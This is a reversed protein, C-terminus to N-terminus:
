LFDRKEQIRSQISTQKQLIPADEDHVGMSTQSLRSNMRRLHMGEEYILAENNFHSMGSSRYPDERNSSLYAQYQSMLNGPQMSDHQYRFNHMNSLQSQIDPHNQM